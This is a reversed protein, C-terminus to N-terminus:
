QRRVFVNFHSLFPWDTFVSGAATIRWVDLGSIATSFDSMLLALAYMKRTLTQSACSVRLALELNESGWIEMGKDYAGLEYFFDRDIAFACGVHM